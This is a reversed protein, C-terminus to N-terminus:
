DMASLRIVEVKSGGPTPRDPESLCLLADAEALGFTDASGSWACPETVLGRDEENWLRAPIFAPRPDRHPKIERALTVTIRPPPQPEFGQLARIGMRVFLWACVFASVPNGPLGFVHQGAPGVGYAVPKGPRISVGHFRWQVGLSALVQPALDLTGMSMGGVIVVLPQKLAETLLASLAASDDRGMAPPLPAAGFQRLLAALMPGNSDCIQGPSRPDGPRVLEDGTSIIAAGVERAVSLESAGATAAAAIHAPLLKLPPTLVTDGRSRDSGRRAVSKEAPVAVLIKVADESLECDEIRAVADAGPPLPAGTNIRVAEGPGVVGDYVGGAPVLGRVRLAACPAACDVSRVAFGDMMAKDFAPHDADTQVPATLVRGAADALAVIEVGIPPLMRSAQSACAHWLHQWADRLNVLPHPQQGWSHGSQSM